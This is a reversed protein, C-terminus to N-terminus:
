LGRQAIIKKSHQITKVLERKAPCIFSCCGCQICQKAGYKVTGEYDGSLACSDIYMPMLFMPCVSACKGCNICQSPPTLNVEAASLALLASTTKTTAVNDNAATGGMMPGGNILKVCESNKLVELEARLGKITKLQAKAAPPAMHEVEAQLKNIEEEKAAVFEKDTVLGLKAIVDQYLTGTRVWYNGRKAASGGSYTMVRKYCPMGEKVALYVSLATHVNQVSVSAKAPLCGVPVKRGTVAYIIQKEAGQPYKVKLPVVKILEYEPNGCIAKNLAEIADPKNREVAIFINHVNLARALLMTGNLVQETYELMVRHDATIYPECEAANIVLTDVRETPPPVLKVGTPFGAGGMGVIGCETVRAVIEDGTPNDLSPLRKEETDAFDNDIVIHEVTAGGIVPRKEIGMVKGSVSAFINSSIKGDAAAILTGMNVKDGVKVVPKAAAGLHQALPVYVKAPASLEGIAIDATLKNCDPHVGRPFTKYM